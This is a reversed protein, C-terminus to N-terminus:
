NLTKGSLIQDRLYSVEEKLSSYNEGRFLIKFDEPKANFVNELSKFYKVIQLIVKENLNLNSLFRFGRASVNEEVPGGFVLKAMVEKDMLSDFTFTDILAKSKRLSMKSYDRLVDDRTKEVGRILEKYRLSMVSGVNGLETFYKKIMESIRLVMEARQILNSVDGITTLNTMELIDLKEKAENFLERQKELLHLNSSVEGLLKNTDKLIYKNNGFFLTTKNKRESVVIVFTNTQKATREGAKHRTGTENTPIKPNPTLLVNAYLIRKLDASIIVAGDMKCLEFLRNPTFKSNVKFGGEILGTLEVCDFVILAGMNSSILDDIVTRLATGPSIKKMYDSLKVDKEAM